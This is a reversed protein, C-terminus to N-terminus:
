EAILPIWYPSAVFLTALLGVLILDEFGLSSKGSSLLSWTNVALGVCTFLLMTDITRKMNSAVQIPDM